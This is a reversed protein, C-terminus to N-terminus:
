LNDERPDPSTYNEMIGHLMIDITKNTLDDVSMAEGEKIIDGSLSATAGFILHATVKPNIDKRFEGNNIGEIVINELSKLKDDRSAKLWKHLDDSLTLHDQLLIRAMNRHEIMFVLHQRVIDQIKEVAMLMSGRRKSVLKMHEKSVHIVMEKFVEEKSSFYEYVTGKGVGAESAIEEVKAQYFGKTSFVREAAEIILQRKGKQIDPEM